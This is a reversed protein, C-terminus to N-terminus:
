EAGNDDMGDTWETDDDLDLDSRKMYKTGAPTYGKPGMVPCGPEGANHQEECESCVEICEDDTEWCDEWCNPCVDHTSALDTRAETESAYPGQWDTCDLYGPASLRAYFGRERLLLTKCADVIKPDRLHPLTAMAAAAIMTVSAGADLWTRLTERAEKEEDSMDDTPNGQVIEGIMHPM